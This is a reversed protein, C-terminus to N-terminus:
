QPPIPPPFASTAWHPELRARGQFDQQRTSAASVCPGRTGERLPSRAESLLLLLLEWGRERGGEKRGGRTGRRRAGYRSTDRSAALRASTSRRRTCRRGPRPRAATRLRTGPVSARRGARPRRGRRPAGSAGTSGLAAPRSAAATRGLGTATPRRTTPAGTAGRLPRCPDEAPPLAGSAAARTPLHRHASDRGTCPRSHRRRSRFRHLPPPAADARKEEGAEEGGPPRAAPEPRWVNRPRLALHRGDWRAQFRSAPSLARCGWVAVRCASGSPNQAGEASSSYDPTPTESSAQYSLPHPERHGHAWRPQWRIGATRCSSFVVFHVETFCLSHKGWM